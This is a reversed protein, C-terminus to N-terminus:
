LAEKWILSASMLGSSGSQSTVTIVDGPKIVIDLDQLEFLAGNDKAVQASFVVRGGSTYTQVTDAEMVSDNGNIDTYSPTGGLTANIYIKFTALANVDNGTSLQQLFCRVKNTKSNYTSKNRVHFLATETSHSNSNEFVNNPGLIRSEGEVYAGMSATKLTLNTTNGDNEIFASMPLSPNLISPLTNLNAYLITHVLILKGTFENEIYFSIEGAGLWQFEIQFINIKTQDLTMGSPNTNPDNSGDLRDANWSNQYTWFDVGDRRRLIGFNTGDYGFFFGDESDGHGIIQSSSAVGATFLGTFRVLAGLGPKYTLARVSSFSASGLSNTSTQLVAMSDSETVSGGNATTPTVIDNNINYPFLLQVEPTINVTRLDGFASTPQNIDVLLSGNASSPVNRFNYNSDQASIVARVNSVDFDSSLSQNLRSVLSVQTIHYITQLTFSTTATTGNVYRVRFYKAIVGLTRPAANTIDAVAIEISRHTTVSDHSFEMFLTGDATGASTGDVSVSISSFGSIQEWTGVFSASAGLTANSSNDTSVGSKSVNQYSGDPEQGAIISRNVTAIMDGAFSGDVRLLQPSISKTLFKTEYYFDTQTVGGDNTFKYQIYDSFAPAAYLQYGNAGVYPLTLTRVVDTGASDNAFVFELTGDHSATVQTQVQTFGRADLFGSDFTAGSALLATTSFASGDKKLNEFTGGPEQGVSITRSVSALTTPDIEANLSGAFAGTESTRLTAELYFTTQATTGNTYNVRFGDLLTGTKVVLFGSAIDAETFNYKETVRVTQSGQVDDTFEIKFGDQASIEDTAVVIEIAKWGDTDVWDSTYNASIGLNSSTSFASGDAAANVYDGDPQKGVQLSKVVTADSDDNVVQGLPANPKGAFTGYYTSLRLYNQDVNDNVLRVRFYRPGKVATHFEHINPTITFGNVPFTTWNTGNVSFDFYLTGSQDTQCSVMVDPYDNQEGTGTFTNNSLLISTTTNGSSTESLKEPVYSM